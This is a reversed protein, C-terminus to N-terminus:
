PECHYSFRTEVMDWVDARTHYADSDEGISSLSLHALEHWLATQEITPMIAVHLGNDTRYGGVRYPAYTDEQWYINTRLEPTTGTAEAFARVFDLTHTKTTEEDYPSEYHTVEIAVHDIPHCAGLVTVWGILAGRFTKFDRRM